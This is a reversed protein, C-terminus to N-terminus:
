ALANISAASPTSHMASFKQLWDIRRRMSAQLAATGQKDETAKSDQELSSLKKTCFDLLNVHQNPAIGEQELDQRIASLDQFDKDPLKGTQRLRQLMDSFGQPSIDAVDYKSLIERLPNASATGPSSAAGLAGAAKRAATEAPNKTNGLGAAHTLKSVVNKVLM